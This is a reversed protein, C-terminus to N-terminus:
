CKGTATAVARNSSCVWGRMGAVEAVASESHQVHVWTHRNSDGSRKHQMIHVEKLHKSSVPTGVARDGSMQEQVREPAHVPSFAGVNSPPGPPLPPRGGEPQVGPTHINTCKHRLRCASTCQATDITLPRAEFQM